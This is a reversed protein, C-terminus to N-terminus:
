LLGTPKGMSPLSHGCPCAVSSGGQQLLTSLIWRLRATDGTSHVAAWTCAPRSCGQWLPLLQLQQGGLLAQQLGHEVANLPAPHGDQHAGCRAPLAAEDTQCRLQGPPGQRLDHQGASGVGAVEQPAKLLQLGAPLQLHAGRLLQMSTRRQFVAELCLCGEAHRQFKLSGFLQLGAALQLHAEQPVQTCLGAALATVQQLLSQAAPAWAAPADGKLNCVHGRSRNPRLAGAARQTGGSDELRRAAPGLLLRCFPASNVDMMTCPRCDEDQM